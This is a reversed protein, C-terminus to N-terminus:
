SKDVSYKGAGLFLIALSAFIYFAPLEIAWAGHNGLVFVENPHVLYIAMLMTVAIITAAVRTQLGILLMIPAIVEGVYVGYALFEPFGNKVVMGKIFGIGGVIKAFGHFLMLFGVGVRLILKGFDPNNFFGM